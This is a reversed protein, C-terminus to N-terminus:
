ILICICAFLRKDTTISAFRGSVASFVKPGIYYLSFSYLVEPKKHLYILQNKDPASFLIHLGSEIWFNKFLDKKLFLNIYKRGSKRKLSNIDLLLDVYKFESKYTSLEEFSAKQSGKLVSVMQMKLFTYSKNELKINYIADLSKLGELKYTTLNQSRSMYSRKLIHEMTPTAVLDLNFNKINQLEDGRIQFLLISLIAILQNLKHM